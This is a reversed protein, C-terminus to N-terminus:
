QDSGENFKEGKAIHFDKWSKNYRGMEQISDIDDPSEKHMKNIIGSLEENMPKNTYRTLKQDAAQYNIESVLSMLTWLARDRATVEGDKVKTFNTKINHMTIIVEEASMDAMIMHIVDEIAYRFGGTIPVNVIAEMPIYVTGTNLNDLKEISDKKNENNLIKPNPQNNDETKEKKKAMM